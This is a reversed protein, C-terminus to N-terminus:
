LANQSWEEVLRGRPNEANKLWGKYPVFVAVIVAVIKALVDLFIIFFM